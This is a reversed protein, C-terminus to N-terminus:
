YQMVYRIMFVYYLFVNLPLPKGSELPRPSDLHRAGPHIGIIIIIIIIMVIIMQIRMLIRMLTIM